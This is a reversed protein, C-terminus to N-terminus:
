IKNVTLRRILDFGIRIFNIQRCNIVTLDYKGFYIRMKSQGNKFNQSFVINKNYKDKNSISVEVM